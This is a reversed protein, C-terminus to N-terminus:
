ALESLADIATDLGEKARENAELYEDVEGQFSRLDDRVKAQRNALTQLRRMFRAPIVAKRAM